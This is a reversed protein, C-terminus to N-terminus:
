DWLATLDTSVDTPKLGKHQSALNQANSGVLITMVSGDTFHFVMMEARHVGPLSQQEGFEVFDITKGECKKVDTMKFQPDPPGVIKPSNM